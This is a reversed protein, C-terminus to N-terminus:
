RLRLRSDPSVPLVGVLPTLLKFKALIDIDTGQSKAAELFGKYTARRTVLVTRGPDTYGLVMNWLDVRNEERGPYDLGIFPVVLMVLRHRARWRLLLKKFISICDDRSFVGDIDTLMAPDDPGALVFELPNRVGRDADSFPRHFVMRHVTCACGIELTVSITDPRPIGGKLYHTFFSGLNKNIAGLAKGLADYAPSELGHDCDLCRYVARDELVFQPGDSENSPIVLMSEKLENEATLDHARLVDNLEDIDDDWRAVLRGGSTVSSADNPNSVQIYSRSGCEDCEIVFGGRDNVGGPWRGISVHIAQGCGSKSCIAAVM